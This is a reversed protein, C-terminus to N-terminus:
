YINEFIEMWKDMTVKSISETLRLGISGSKKQRYINGQWKYVHCGFTASIMVELFSQM